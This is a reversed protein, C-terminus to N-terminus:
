MKWWVLLRQLIFSHVQQLIDCPEVRSKLSKSSICFNGAWLVAEIGFTQDDPIRYGASTAGSVVM